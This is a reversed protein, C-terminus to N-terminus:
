KVAFTKRMSIFITLSLLTYVVMASSYGIKADVIIDQQVLYVYFLVSAILRIIEIVYARKNAELILGISTISLLILLMFLVGTVVPFSEYTFLFLSTIGLIIIFQVFVYYNLQVPIVTNFKVATAPTIEPAQQPGGLEKPFWGPPLLLLKLKDTFKKTRSLDAWLEKWFDFQARLPNWTKLPKTIGYVVEEEEKQFTGFMRDWIILTGGHNKDIYKPNRGHHVRHHSPTNLVYELPAPLLHITKTHIWFQYLTQIQSIVIFMTPNFGIFALPLYFLFSGFKQFAGQRLAVSLNYEESQHHVVHGGWLVNIEHALRHFWYYFFDVGIFLVIWTLVGAGIDMVAYHDYIWIYIGIVFAKLFAGTVQETIGANINSLADNLRYYGTKKSKDIIIEIGILLFFIPISLVILNVVEPM